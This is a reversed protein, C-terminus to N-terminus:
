FRYCAKLAWSRRVSPYRYVLIKGPESAQFPLMDHEGLLNQLNLQLDFVNGSKLKFSRGLMANVLFERRGHIPANSDAANYGIVPASRYNAGGGVRLGRLWGPVAEGFRYSTFVNFSDRQFQMPQQGDARNIEAVQLAAFAYADAITAPQVAFDRGPTNDRTRVYTALQTTTELLPTDNGKWAAAVEQIFLNHFPALNSLGLNNRSYNFAVSWRQSIAGVLEVEVGDGTSDVTHGNGGTWQSAGAAVMSAPLAQGSAKLADIVYPVSANMAQQQQVFTNIQQNKDDTEYYNVSLWLRGDRLNFRLGFDRGEGDRNGYQVNYPDPATQPNVSNSQNYSVSLWPLPLAVVGLSSTNGSFKAVPLRLNSIGYYLNTSNPVKLTPDEAGRWDKMADSRYGATLIIKDRLFRSQSVMMASDTRVLRSGTAGVVYWASKVGPADLPTAWPDMAGRLGGPTTFDLYTRRYISNTATDILQNNNPTGNYERQVWTASTSNDRQFMGSFMHRGFWTCRRTLDLEYGLTARFQDQDWDFPRSQAQGEVYLSGAYPNVAAIDPLLTGPLRGAAVRSDGDAYYAGPILPNADGNVGDASATRNDRWLQLHRYAIEIALGGISQEFQLTTVTHNFSTTAGLGDLSASLPVLSGLYPDDVTGQALTSAGPVCDWFGSAQTGPLDPRLDGNITSLRFPQSRLQPAFMVQEINRVRLLGPAPNATSLFPVSGMPAGAALWRTGGLDNPTGRPRLQDVHRSEVAARLRTDRYPQFLTALAVSKQRLFEFDRWGERDEVVSNLRLELKNHIVPLGYDLEARRKNWSGLTVAVEGKRSNLHARKSSTNLVGGPTGIGFLVANPGRNVEVREVNFSDATMAWPFYDRTVTASGFGRIRAPADYWQSGDGNSDRGVDFSASTTMRLFDETNQAGLDDLLDKTLVSVAAATELISTNLRTGALTNTARYGEDGRTSIVFPSLEIIEEPSSASSAVPSPTQAAGGPYSLVLALAAAALPHHIRPIM